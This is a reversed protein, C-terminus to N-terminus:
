PGPAALIFGRAQEDPRNAVRTIVALDEELSGTTLSRDDSTCQETASSAVIRYTYSSEAKLGLLLGRHTEGEVSIPGGSGTNIVDAGPDDLTFEIRAQALNELSTSWRVIGVTPIVSSLEDEIDFSCDVETLPSTGGTGGAGAGGAGTTAAGTGTASGGSGTASGGSGTAASGGTS